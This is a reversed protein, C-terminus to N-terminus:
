TFVWLKVKFSFAGLFISWIARDIKSHLNLLWLAQFSVISWESWLLLTAVLKFEGIVTWLDTIWNSVVCLGPYSRLPLLIEIDLIRLLHQFEWWMGSMFSPLVELYFMICARYCTADEVHVLKHHFSSLLITSSLVFWRPCLHYKEDLIRYIDQFLESHQHHECCM